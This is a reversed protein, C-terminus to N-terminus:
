EAPAQRSLYYLGGLFSSTLLAGGSLLMADNAIPYASPKGLTMGMGGTTILALGSFTGVASLTNIIYHVPKPCSPKTNAQDSSSDSGSVKISSSSEETQSDLEEDSLSSNRAVVNNDDDNEVLPYPSIKEILVKPVPATSM